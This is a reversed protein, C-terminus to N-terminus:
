LKLSFAPSKMSPLFSGILSNESPITASKGLDGNLTKNLHITNVWNNKDKLLARFELENKNIMFAAMVSYSLINFDEETDLKRHDKLMWTRAEHVMVGILTNDRIRMFFKTRLFNFLREYCHISKRNKVISNVKKKDPILVDVYVDEKTTTSPLNESEVGSEGIISEYDTPADEFCTKVTVSRKPRYDFTFLRTSLNLNDGLGPQYHKTKKARVMYDDLDSKMGTFPVKPIEVKALKPSCPDEVSLCSYMNNLFLDNNHKYPYEKEYSFSTKPAEIKMLKRTFYGKVNHASKRLGTAFGVGPTIGAAMATNM